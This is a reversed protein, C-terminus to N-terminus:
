GSGAEALLDAVEAAIRDAAELDGALFATDWADRALNLRAALEDPTM